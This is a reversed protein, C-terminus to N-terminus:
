SAAVSPASPNRAASGLFHSLFHSFIGDNATQRRDADFLEFLIRPFILFENTQFFFIAPFSIYVYFFLAPRGHRAFLFGVALNGFPTCFHNHLDTLLCGYQGAGVTLVM